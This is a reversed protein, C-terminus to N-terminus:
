KDSASYYGDPLNFENNWTPVSIYLLYEHVLLLYKEWTYYISLNTLDM